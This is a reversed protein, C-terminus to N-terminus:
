EHTKEGEGTTASQMLHDSPGELAYEYPGRSVIPIQEFNGHPPPSPADWELTNSNWPNKDAKPGFFVSYFINIVFLIQTLGLLIASITM